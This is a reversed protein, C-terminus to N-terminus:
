SSRAAAVLADVDPGNSLGQGEPFVLGQDPNGSFWLGFCKLCYRWKNQMVKAVGKM